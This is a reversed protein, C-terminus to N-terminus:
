INVALNRTMINDDITTSFLYPNIMVTCKVVKLIRESAVQRCSSYDSLKDFFTVCSFNNMLPCATAYM